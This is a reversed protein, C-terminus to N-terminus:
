ATRVGTLFKEVVEKLSGAERSLSRASTLVEEAAAGTEKATETVGNINSSVEQTGQAAQNINRAIEATAASQEEVAASIATAIGNIEEIRKVIGAIAAVADGTAVQVAGIQESIEETAKATQNALNKVEGAVVAFGKGADGARAAEITANLALLNTQSAIDNILKVVDGIRASKEALGTITQNTHDAEESATRSIQSSQEVQRGIEHISSSLEEAASAVTQVSSSTQETAAAVASTQANTREATSSMSQASTEMHTASGRLTELVKEITDNFEGTLTELTSARKEQVKRQTERESAMHEAKIANDKFVQVAQAMSGIEDSRGVGPVVVALDHEALRRMAETMQLLPLSVRRYVLLFGAVTLFTAALLEIVSVVLTTTAQSGLEKARAIMEDLATNLLDVVINLEVTDRKQLDAMPMTVIGDRSLTDIISKREDAMPGTFYQKATAIGDVITRPTDPRIGVENIVAWANTVRGADEAAAVVDASTWSKKAAAAGEIRVAIMGGFGRITWASRKVTLLQDVNPDTLRASADLLDITTTIADLYTSGVKPIDRVLEPDRDAKPKQIAPDIRTRLAVMDDHAAKLRSLTSPLDPLEIASLRKLCEAFAEEALKRNDTIRTLAAGDVAAESLSAGIETGREMRTALLTKFLFRSTTTLTSLRDADRWSKAADTLTGITLAVLLVGMLGVLSGLITRISLKQLNLM